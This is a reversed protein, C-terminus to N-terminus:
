VPWLVGERSTAEFLVLSVSCRSAFGLIIALVNVSQTVGRISAM